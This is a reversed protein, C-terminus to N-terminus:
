KENLAQQIDAWPVFEGVELMEIVASTRAEEERLEDLGVPDDVYITLEDRSEIERVKKLQELLRGKVARVSEPPIETAEAIESEPVRYGHQLERIALDAKKAQIAFDAQRQPSVKPNTSEQLDKHEAAELRQIADAKQDSASESALACGVFLLAVVAAGVSVLRIRARRVGTIRAYTFM